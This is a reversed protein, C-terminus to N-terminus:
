RSWHFSLRGLTWRSFACELVRVRQIKPCQPTLLMPRAMTSSNAMNAESASNTPITAIQACTIAVSQTMTAAMFKTAKPQSRCTPTSCRRQARRYEYLTFGTTNRGPHALSEVFGAGVPDAVMAFIIPVTSTAQQLAVVPHDGSALIVDPGLAVLEAVYKRTREAEGAGWRLDIRVNQGDPWGLEQLRKLFATLRPQGDPGDAPWV